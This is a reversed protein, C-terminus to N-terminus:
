EALYPVLVEKCQVQGAIMEVPDERVCREEM